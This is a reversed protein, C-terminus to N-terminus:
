GRAKEAPRAPEWMEAQGQNTETYGWPGGYWGIPTMMSIPLFYRAPGERFEKDAKM